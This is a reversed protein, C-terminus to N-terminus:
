TNTDHNGVERGPHNQYRDKFGGFIRELLHDIGRTPDSDVLFPYIGAIVPLEGRMAHIQM